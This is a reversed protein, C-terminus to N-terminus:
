KVARAAQVLPTIAAITDAELGDGAIEHKRPNKEIANAISLIAAALAQQTDPIASLKEADNLLLKVDAQSAAMGYAQVHAGLVKKVDDHTLKVPDAAKQAATDAAEDKADQKDEATAPQKAAEAAAAAEAAEKAAKEAAKKQAATMRPEAATTQEAVPATSVPGAPGGNLLMRMEHQAEEASACQITINIM